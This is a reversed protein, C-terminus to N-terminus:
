NRFVIDGAQFIKAAVKEREAFTLFSTEAHPDANYAPPNHFELYHIPVALKAKIIRAAVAAQEATMVGPLGTPELGPVSIRAGNIPLFAVDVGGSIKAIEWWYGHFLSDGTHFIKVGDTEVIWSCQVAGFGDVAPMATVRFAGLQVSQRDAVAEVKLGADSVEKAVAAPAAVRSHGRSLARRLADADYHDKHLHTVLAYDIPQDAFPHLPLRNPGIRGQVEGTRGELGDIVLREGSSEVLVGAWSLKRVIVNQNM